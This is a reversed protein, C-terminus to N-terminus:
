PKPTKTPKPPSKTPKDPVKTPKPPSKIRAQELAIQRVRAVGQNIELRVLRFQPDDAQRVVHEPHDSSADDVVIGEWNSQSQVPLSAM